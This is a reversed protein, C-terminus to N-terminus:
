TMGVVELADLVAKIIGGNLLAIFSGHLITQVFINTHVSWLTGRTNCVGAGARLFVKRLQRNSEQATGVGIAVVLAVLVFVVLPVWEVINLELLMIRSSESKELLKPLVSSPLFSYYSAKVLKHNAVFKIKGLFPV